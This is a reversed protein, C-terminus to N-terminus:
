LPPTKIKKPRFDKSTFGWLCTALTCDDKARFGVEPAKSMHSAALDDMQETTTTQAGNGNGAIRCAPTSTSRAAKRKARSGKRLSRLHARRAARM